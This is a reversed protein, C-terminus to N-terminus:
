IHILSLDASLTGIVPVSKLEEDDYGQVSPISFEIQSDGAYISCPLDLEANVGQHLRNGDGLVICRGLNVIALKYTGNRDLVEIQCQSESVLEDEIQIHHRNQKPKPNSSGLTLGQVDVCRQIHQKSNFISVQLM